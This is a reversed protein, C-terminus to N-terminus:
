RVAEKVEQFLQPNTFHKSRISGSPCSGVCNGCGRCVAENVVSVAREDDFYIAGYKCIQLCTQCGTCYAELIESVKVEPIIKQGPILQVSIKAVAAKAQIVSDTVDAPGHAAGVAFIGDNSTSIPDIKLHAEKYFGFEDLDTNLLKALENSGSAPIMAQAYVIMDHASEGANGYIDTYNVTEGNLNLSKVYQFEVGGSKMENYYSQNEKNPLCLEKVYHRIPIDPYMTKLYGSIKLLYNCCIKSCYGVKERGACHAMGVSSPAKGNKKVIKKQASMLAEIELGSFVDDKDTFNFYESGKCDLLDYGTAIIVAGAMFETLENSIINKIVIEFNGQFGIINELKTNTFIKVNPNNLLKATKQRIFNLNSGQMTKGGPEPAKEILYVTREESALNLASEIGAIGGGIVLVDPNSELQKEFLEEQYFVRNIGGHIYQIAKKTAEEKDPIVWACHERINVMTYLYPNMQTKKCVNIFTTDHDRPSCAACVMHTLNNSKIEEELFKKGGVSCLLKHKKVVLEKDNFDKLESIEKVIKDIDVRGAINPGCECVFIGIKDSM